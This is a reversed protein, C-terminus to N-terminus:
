YGSGASGTAAGRATNPTGGPNPLSGGQTGLGVSRRRLAFELNFKAEDNDPDLEIASHLHKVAAKLAARQEDATQVPTALLLVGVLTMARSRRAPDGGGAAIAELQRQAEARQILVNTDYSRTDELKGLRMARVARRFALDDGVALSKRAVELPVLAGPDWLDDASPAARYRSDDARVADSWRWVDAALVILLAGLAIVAFAGGVRGIRRM